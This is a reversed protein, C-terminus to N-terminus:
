VWVRVCVCLELIHLLTHLQKCSTFSGLVTSSADNIHVSPNSSKVDDRCEGVERDGLLAEFAGAGAVASTVMSLSLHVVSRGCQCRVPMASADCQAITDNM